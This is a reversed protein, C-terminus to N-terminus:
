GASSIRLSMRLQSPRALTFLSIGVCRVVGADCVVGAIPADRIIFPTPPVDIWQPAWLQRRM